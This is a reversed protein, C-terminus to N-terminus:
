LQVPSQLRFSLRTESPIKVKQGTTLVEAGTGAAAGSGAGIAAGKGGGVAAGIIAGLVAGGGIVGASRAGRSGSSTQVDTSTVDVPAGNITITSLALTLVTRGEIKGSQQDAVLKTLVDAGRPIVTTGNVTVPEDISARFTQGLRATDSNVSEVMRISIRTDAPITIGAIPAPPPPNYSGSESGPARRLSPYNPDAPPPYSQRPYPQPAPYSQAQPPPPPQYGQDSFTISRVDAIDYNSIQGNLDMRVQRATAGIFTGEIRQGNRLTITDAGLFAAAGCFLIGTRVSLKM